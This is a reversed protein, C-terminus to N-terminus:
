IWRSKLLPVGKAELHAAYLGAAVHNSLSLAWNLVPVYSLASAVLGFGRMEGMHHEALLQQADGDAVGKSEWYRSMLSGVEAGSDRYVLLPLLVAAGPVLATFGLTAFDRAKRLLVGENAQPKFLLRVGLALAAGLLSRGQQASAEAQRRQTLMRNLAQADEQRLPALSSPQSWLSQVAQATSNYSGGAAGGQQQKMAALADTYSGSSSGAPVAHGLKLQVTRDFLQRGLKKLRHDFIVYIPLASEGLLLLSAIFKSFWHVGLLRGLVAMHPKWLLAFCLLTSVCSAATVIGARPTPTTDPLLLLHFRQNCRNNGLAAPDAQHQVTNPQTHLPKRFWLRDQQKRM